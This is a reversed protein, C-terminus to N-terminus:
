CSLQTWHTLLVAPDLADASDLLIAPDLSDASDLLVAPDLSNATDLLDALWNLGAFDGWV